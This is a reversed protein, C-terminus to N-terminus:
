QGRAWQRYAAIWEAGAPPPKPLPLDQIRVRQKERGRRCVALIALEDVDLSEVVVDDGLLRTTFPMALHEELRILFGTVQEHEDYADVTAEEILRKLRAKGTSRTARTPM